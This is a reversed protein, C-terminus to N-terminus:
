SVMAEVAAGPRVGVPADLLAARLSGLPVRQLDESFRMRRRGMVLEAWRPVDASPRLGNTWWSQQGRPTKKKKKKLSLSLAFLCWRTKSVSQFLELQPVTHVAADYHSEGASHKNDDDM